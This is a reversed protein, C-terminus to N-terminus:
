PVVAVLNKNASLFFHYFTQYSCYNKTYLVMKKCYFWSTKELCVKISQQIKHSLFIHYVYYM